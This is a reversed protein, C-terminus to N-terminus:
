NLKLANDLANIYEQDKGSQYDLDNHDGYIMRTTKIDKHGIQSKIFNDSLQPNAAQADLLATSAYHRFTKFPEGKFKCSIVKVHNGNDELVALGIKAYARYLFNRLQKDTVPLASRYSNQFVFKPDPILKSQFEKWRALIKRLRSPMFLYRESGEAKLKFRLTQHKMQQKIHIRNTLTNVGSWEVARVEAPRAGTYIFFNIAVYNLVDDYNNPNQPKIVELLRNVEYRNIMVTKKIKDSGDTPILQPYKKIEFFRINYDEEQVLDQDVCWEFMGKFSYIIISANNYTSGNERMREFFKVLNKSRLERLPLDKPFYLNIWKDFHRRYIKAQHETIKDYTNWLEFKYNAYKQYAERVTISSIKARAKEANDRLEERFKQAEPKTKFSGVVKYKGLDDAQQVVFKNNKNVIKTKIMKPM